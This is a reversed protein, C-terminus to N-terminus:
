DEEILDCRFKTLEKDSVRIKLIRRDQSLDVELGLSMLKKVLTRPKIVYYEM